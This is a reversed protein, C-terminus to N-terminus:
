PRVSYLLAVVGNAFQRSEILSLNLAVGDPYFRKGGGLVIPCIIAQVEDVLGARMAHAALNPGEVSLDHSSEAKLQRIEDADFHRRLQTRQSRAEALTTSYVIKDTAQWQRAWELIVDPHDGATPATEWYVMTEYMKRGYLYTGLTAGLTNIYAHLDADDPAGWSFDGNADEIYGDLSVLMAYILKAM